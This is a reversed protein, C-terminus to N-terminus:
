RRGVRVREAFNGPAASWLSLCLRRFRPPAGSHISPFGPGVQHGRAWARGDRVASRSITQRDRRGPESRPAKAGGLTPLTHRTLGRVAPTQKELDPTTARGPFRDNEHLHHRRQDMVGDRRDDGLWAAQVLRLCSRTSSQFLFGVPKKEWSASLRLGFRHLRERLVFFAVAERIGGTSCFGYCHSRPTVLIPGNAPRRDALRTGRIHHRDPPHATAREPRWGAILRTAPGREVPFPGEPGGGEARSDWHVRGSPTTRPEIAEV